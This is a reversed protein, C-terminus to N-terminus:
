KRRPRARRAPARAVTMGTRSLSVVAGALTRRLPAGAGHADWLASHLAELKALEVPGEDGLREIARALLRLSIEDAAGFFAAADVEVGDGAAKGRAPHLLRAQLEDVVAEIAADARAFRRAATALRSSTLGESALTEAMRRLRVRTFKADANSPDQAFVVGAGRLTAVLRAKPVGLLPRVLAVGERKSVPRIGGLGALGSGRALRMLLTEAQDDLTHATVVADAGLRRALGILIRYRAARAAEQLGTAPKKGTWPLVHHPVDLKRAFKTVAEAERKSERRLRHDVTAAVLDPASRRKSVWRQLLMLLATSDPGGSVAILARRFDKLEFFLSALEHDAIPGGDREAAPM